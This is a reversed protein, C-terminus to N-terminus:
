CQGLDGHGEILGFVEHITGAVLDFHQYQDIPEVRRRLEIGHPAPQEAEGDAGGEVARLGLEIRGVVDIGHRLQGVKAEVGARELRETQAEGAHLAIDALM